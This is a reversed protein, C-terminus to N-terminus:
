PRLRVDFLPREAGTHLPTIAVGYVPELVSSTLVHSWSGQAVVRGRDMLWVVDAYRAALNIEQVVTLITLGGAALSRLHSMTGHVHELDMASTPEDLLMVRGQGRSQAMARALLVRQQQGVSLETYPRHELDGLDCAILAEDIAAADLSLAYRGMAVVQRATFAFAVSSRQPVYSFWEARQRPRMRHVPCGDMTVQGRGPRLLGLMLKLLTTKGCGNPGILMHVAGPSLPGSVGDIVRRGAHYEFAVQDLQLGM